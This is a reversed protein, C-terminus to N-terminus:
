ECDWTYMVDSFDRALLKERPIFFRCGGCDGIMVLSMANGDKDRVIHTYIQLLLTDYKSLEENKRRPDVQEFNPYGGISHVVVDNEKVIYLTEDKSLGDTGGEAGAKLLADSLYMKFKYDCYNASSVTPTFVVPFVNQIPFGESIGNDDCFASDFDDENEDYLVRFGSQKTPNNFDAGYVDNDAIYFRLVGHTPFDPVGRVESCWIAALLKMPKGEEDCPVDKDVPAGGFRSKDGDSKALLDIYAAPIATSRKIYGVAKVVEARVEGVDNDFLSKGNEIRKLAAKLGDANSGHMVAHEFYMKSKEEDGLAYHAMCLANEAQHMGPKLSLAREAHEIAKEWESDVVYIQALNNWATVNDKDISLAKRYCEEAKAHDGDSHHASGLSVWASANLPDYRLLEEYNEVLEKRMGNHEYAISLFHFVVRFDEKNKCEKKLAVLRSIAKSLKKGNLDAIAKLLNNKSKKQEPRSFASGIDKEYAKEYDKLSPTVGRARAVFKIWVFLIGVFIAAPKVVVDVSMKWDNEALSLIFLVISAGTLITLVAFIIFMAIKNKRM